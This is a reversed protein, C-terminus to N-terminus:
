IHERARMTRILDPAGRAKKATMDDEGILRWFPVPQAGSANERMATECIEELHLRVTVPCTLDADAAIAFAKKMAAIDSSHGSAIGRAYDELMALTPILVKRTKGNAGARLKVFAEAM